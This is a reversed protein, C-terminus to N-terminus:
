VAFGFGLGVALLLHYDGREQVTVGLTLNPALYVHQTLFVLLPLRATVTHQLGDGPSYFGGLGVNSSRQAGLAYSAVPALAVRPGVAFTYGLGLGGGGQLTSADGPAGTTGAFPLYEYTSGGLFAFPELTFGSLVVRVRLQGTGGLHTSRYTGMPDTMRSSDLAGSLEIGVSRGEFRRAPDPASAPPAALLAGQQFAFCPACPALTCLCACARVLTKM